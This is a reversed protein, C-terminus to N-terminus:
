SDLQELMQRRLNNLLSPAAYRGDPDDLALDALEWGSEGLRGFAKRVALPTQEPQRAPELPQAAELTVALDPRAVPTGTVRVGDASLTLAVRLPEAVRCDREHPLRLAYRRQVAQSASCFVP